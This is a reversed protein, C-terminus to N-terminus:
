GLTGGMVRRQQESTQPPPRYSSIGAFGGGRNGFTTGPRASVGTMSMAPLNVPRFDEIRTLGMRLNSLSENLRGLPTSQNPGALKARGGRSGSGGRFVGTVTYGAPTAGGGGGYRSRAPGSYAGSQTGSAGPLTLDIRALLRAIAGLM